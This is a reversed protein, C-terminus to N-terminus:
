GPTAAKPVFFVVVPSGKLGALSVRRGEHSPLDLPPAPDGEAPMAAPEPAPKGTM